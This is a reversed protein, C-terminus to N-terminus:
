FLKVYRNCLSALPLSLDRHLKTFCKNISHTSCHINAPFPPLFHICIKLLLKSLQFLISLTPLIVHCVFYLPSRSLTNPTAVIIRVPLCSNSVRCTCSVIRKELADLGATHGVWGGLWHTGPAREWPCVSWPTISFVLRWRTGLDLINSIYRCEGM